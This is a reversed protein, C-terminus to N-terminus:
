GQANDAERATFWDYAQKLVDLTPKAGDVFYVRGNVQKLRTWGEWGEPGAFVDIMRNGYGVPLIKHTANM